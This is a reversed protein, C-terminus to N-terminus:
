ASHTKNRKRKRRQNHAKSSNQSQSHAKEHIKKLDGKLEQMRRKIWYCFRSAGMASSTDMYHEEAALSAFAECMFSCYDQFEVFEDYFHLIDTRLPTKTLKSSENPM